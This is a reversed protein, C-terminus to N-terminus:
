LMSSHRSAFVVGNQPFSFYKLVYFYRTAKFSDREAEFGPVCHPQINSATQTFMFLYHPIVYAHKCCPIQRFDASSLAALFGFKEVKIINIADKQLTTLHNSARVVPM